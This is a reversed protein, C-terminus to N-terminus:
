SSGEAARKAVVRDTFKGESTGHHPPTDTETVPLNLNSALAPLNNLGWAAASAWNGPTNTSAELRPLTPFYQREPVMGTFELAYLLAIATTALSILRLM